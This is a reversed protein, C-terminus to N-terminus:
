AATEEDVKALEDDSFLYPGPDGETTEVAVQVTFQLTRPAIGLVRGITGERFGVATIEVRDGPTYTTDAM